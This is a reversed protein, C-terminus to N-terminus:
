NNSNTPASNQDLYVTIDLFRIIAKRILKQCRDVGYGTNSM